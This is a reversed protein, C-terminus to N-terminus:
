RLPLEQFALLVKTGEIKKPPPRETTRFVEEALQPMVWLHLMDRMLNEMAMVSIASIPLIDHTLLGKNQYGQLMNYEPSQYGKNQYGQLMNYEPSQYGKNQYGQLMNYEPSQYGKNQYGQLM